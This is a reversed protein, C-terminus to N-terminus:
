LNEEKEKITKALRAVRQMRRLTGRLMTVENSELKVRGFLRKMRRMFPEHNREDLFEISELTDELHHYFGQLVASTALEKAQKIREQRALENAQQLQGREPKPRPPPVIGLEAPTHRPPLVPLAVIGALMERAHSKSYGTMRALADIRGEESDYSNVARMIAPSITNTM